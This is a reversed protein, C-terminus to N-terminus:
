AAPLTVDRPQEHEYYATWEPRYHRVTGDPTLAYDVIWGGISPAGGISRGFSSGGGQFTGCLHAHVGRSVFYCQQHWHGTYVGDPKQGPAYGEIRKQLKYSVAYAGSGRPHWLEAVFGRKDGPAMIRVTAGRAGLYILDNRGHRKFVDVLAPGVDLGSGDGLTECHNGLIFPWVLGPRQPLIEAALNAQEEFGRRTQEWVSFKYNGDLTDGPNLICRVGRAYAIAVLAELQDRLHHKSGIHIDSALAFIRRETAKQIVIPVADSVSQHPRRGFHNGDFEIRKGGKSAREVLERVRKPPMDLRDCAEELSVADRKTMRVIEEILAEDDDGTDEYVPISPSSTPPEKPLFARENYSPKKLYDGISGLNKDRIACRISAESINKGLAASIEQLADVSRSHRALVAFAVRLREDTWFSVKAAM